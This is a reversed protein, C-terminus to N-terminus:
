IGFQRHARTAVEDAVEFPLGILDTTVIVICTSCTELGTRGAADIALARAWLPRLVAESPHTRSAYGSMWIPGRPTIDVRAVGARFGAPLIAQGVCLLLAAKMMM